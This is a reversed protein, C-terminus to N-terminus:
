ASHRLPRVNNLKHINTVVAARDYLRGAEREVLDLFRTVDGALRENGVELHHRLGLDEALAFARKRASATFADRDLPKM